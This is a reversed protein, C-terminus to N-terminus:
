KPGARRLILNLKDFSSAIDPEDKKAIFRDLEEWIRVARDVTPDSGETYLGAKLMVEANEYAGLLSRAEELM